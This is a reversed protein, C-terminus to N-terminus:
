CTSRPSRSNTRWATRRDTGVERRLGADAPRLRTRTAAAAVRRDLVALAATVDDAPRGLQDLVVTHVAERLARLRLLGADDPSGLDLGVAAGM